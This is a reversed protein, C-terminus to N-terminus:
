PEDESIEDVADDGAVPVVGPLPGPAELEIVLLQRISGLRALPRAKAVAFAEGSPRQVEAVEAVPLGAPFRGGLGSTVLVDGPELDVNMPLDTLRLEDIRGSGYGITRLGTRQVRVPLAHDPDSLLIVTASRTAVQDVQGVVGASEIVALGPRVGHRLGRNIFVRHSYPNLDINRLEATLFRSDLRLSADLLERMEANEEVLEGLLLQRAESERLARELQDREALLVQYDRVNDRLSVAFRFPSEVVLFIPEALSFALARAREVHRGRFDLTMLVVALLVYAMLRATRGALDGASVSSYASGPM